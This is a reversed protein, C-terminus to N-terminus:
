KEKNELNELSFITLYSSGPGLVNRNKQVIAAIIEPKGNGDVDAVTFDGIYKAVSRSRWIASLGLQDWKLIELRGQKFMRTRSFVGAIDENRVAVIEMLGDGDLDVLHVRSPLYLIDKEQPDDEAPVILANETGGYSEVSAWEENGKLDMLRLYGSRSYNVVDAVGASRVTGQAFGYLTQNRPLTLKQAGDYTGDVFQMEYVGPGFHGEFGQRQGVLVRGRDSMDVARFYWRLEDAIRQLQKGDWEMVYSLLRSYNNDFHTIFIEGSGNGNLDAVDVGVNAVGADVQAMKVMRGQLFRYVAVTTSDICVIEVAGDGDIDGAAVGRIQMDLRRGRALLRVAVKTNADNYAGMLGEPTSTLLKEPHQYIADSPGKPAPGAPTVAPGATVPATIGLLRTKIQDALQDVHAIIDAQSTGARSFALATSGTSSELVRADTSVSDGLITVSELVVYDADHQRGLAAAAANDGPLPADAADQTIASVKGALTLRGALMQVIGARLFAMDQGAHLAPPLILMKIIRDSNQGLAPHIGVFTCFCVLVLSGFGITRRVLDKM